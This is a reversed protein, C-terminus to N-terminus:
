INAYNELDTKVPLSFDNGTKKKGAVDGRQYTDARVM